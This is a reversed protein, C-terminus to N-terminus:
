DDIGEFLKIGLQKRLKDYKKMKFEQDISAIVNGCDYICRPNAKYWVDLKKLEDLEDDSVIGRNRLKDKLNLYLAVKINYAKREKEREVVRLMYRVLDEPLELSINKM